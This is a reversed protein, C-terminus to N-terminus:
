TLRGRGLPDVHLGTSVPLPAPALGICGLQDAGSLGSLGSSAAPGSFNYLWATVHPRHVSLVFHALGSLRANLIGAEDPPSISSVYGYILWVRHGSATGALEPSGLCEGPAVSDYLVYSTRVGTSLAYYQASPADDNHVWVQDTPEVMPRIAQLLPRLDIWTSPDHAVGGVQRLPAQGLAVALCVALGAGEWRLRKRPARHVATEVYLARNVGVAVLDAAGAVGILAAPLLWLAMRGELPFAGVSAAGFGVLIPAALLGANIPERQLCWVLGAAVVFGSVVPIPLAVPDRFVDVAVRGLWPVWTGAEFPRPALGAAWYSRLFTNDGLQRLSVLWDLAFSVVWVASVKLLLRLDSPSPRRLLDVLLVAGTGALVFVAPHSCWVAVAGVVGWTWRTAPGSQREAARLGLAVIIMALTMDSSYQKVEVSYRLAGPAAALLATALAAPWPGLVRRAIYYMLPLAALGATLPLARLAYENNGLALVALRELWLWGVPAGQQGSLPKLLGAFGRGV